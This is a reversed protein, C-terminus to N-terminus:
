AGATGRRSVFYYGGVDIRGVRKATAISAANRPHITGFLMAGGSGDLRDILHRQLAPGYGRRRFEPALLEEHVLFSDVGMFSGRAAAVVGAWRGDIFAEYAHGQEVVARMDDETSLYLGDALEPHAAHYASFTYRYAAYFGLDTCARLELEGHTAPVPLAQLEAITGVLIRLDPELEVEAALGEIPQHSGLQIRVSRPAFRQYAQMLADHLRLLVGPEHLSTDAAVLEVFPHEVHLGKFRIGGLVHHGGVGLVQGLYDEARTGPVPCRTAVRAAIALDHCRLLAHDIEEALQRRISAAAIWRHVEPHVCASAAQIFRERLPGTVAAETPDLRQLSLTM